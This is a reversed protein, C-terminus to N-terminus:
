RWCGGGDLDFVLRYKEPLHERDTLLIERGDGPEAAALGADYGGEAVEMPLLLSYKLALWHQSSSRDPVNLCKTTVGRHSWHSQRGARKAHRPCLRSRPYNQM